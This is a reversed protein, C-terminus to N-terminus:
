FYDRIFEFYQEKKASSKLLIILNTGNVLSM